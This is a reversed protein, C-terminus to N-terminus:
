AVTYVAAEVAGLVPLLRRKPRRGAQTVVDGENRHFLHADYKGCSLDSSTNEAEGHMGPM